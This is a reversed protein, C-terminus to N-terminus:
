SSAITGPAWTVGTLVAIAEAHRAVLDVESIVRMGTMNQQFFSTINGSEDVIVGEESLAVQLQPGQGITMEDGDYLMVESKNGAPDLNTPQHTTTVVEFGWLRGALLEDRFAYPGNPIRLTMLGQKTRPALVWVPRTMGVHGEELKLVMNGLDNTVKDLTPTATMPITNGALAWHRLGKPRHETGPSRLFVQDEGLAMARLTDFRIANSVRPGGRRLLTNSIPVITKEQRARLVLVGFAQQSAPIKQVEGGWSVSASATLRSVEAVGASLDTINGITARIKARETLLDIIEDSHEVGITFGGEEGVGATLAKEVAPMKLTTKAYEIAADRNMKSKALSAIIGGFVLGKETRALASRDQPSGPEIPPANQTSKAKAASVIDAVLPGAVEKIKNELYKDIEAKTM